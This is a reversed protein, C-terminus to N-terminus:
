TIKEDELHLLFRNHIQFCVHCNEVLGHYLEVLLSHVGDVLDHALEPSQHVASVVRGGNLDPDLRGLTDAVFFARVVVLQDLHLPRGLHVHLAFAASTLLYYWVKTERNEDNM